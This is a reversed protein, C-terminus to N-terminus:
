RLHRMCAHLEARPSRMRCCEGADTSWFAPKSPDALRKLSCMGYPFKDGPKCSGSADCEHQVVSPILHATHCLPVPTATVAPGCARLITCTCLERAATCVRASVVRCAVVCGCCVKCSSTVGWPGFGTITPLSRWAPNPLTPNADAATRVACCAACPARCCPPHTDAAATTHAACLRHPHQRQTGGCVCVCVCVCVGTSGWCFTGPRVPPARGSGDCVRCACVAAAVDRVNHTVSCTAAAAAAAARRARATPGHPAAQRAFARPRAGRGAAHARSRPRRDACCACHPECLAVLLALLRARTRAQPPALRWTHQAARQAAAARRGRRGRAVCRDHVPFMPHNGQYRLSGVDLVLTDGRINAASVNFPPQPSPPGATHTTHTHTHTKPNPHTHQHTPTCLVRAPPAHLLPSHQVGSSGPQQMCAACAVATHQQQWTHHQGRGGGCVCVGHADAALLLLLPV